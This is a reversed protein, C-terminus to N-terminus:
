EIDTVIFRCAPLGIADAPICRRERPKLSRAPQNQVQKGTQLIIPRLIRATAQAPASAAQAPVELCALFACSIM